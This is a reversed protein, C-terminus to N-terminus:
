LRLESKLTNLFQHAHASTVKTHDFTLSIPLLLRKKIQIGKVIADEKIRGVGLTAHTNPQLALKSHLSNHNIITFNSGNLDLLSLKKGLARKTLEKLEKEIEDSSKTETRKIVPFVTKQNVIIEIGINCFDSSKLEPFEMLARTTASIIHHNQYRKSKGLHTIDIEETLTVRNTM